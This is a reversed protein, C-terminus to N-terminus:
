GWFCGSFSLGNHTFPKTKVVNLRIQFHPKPEKRGPLTLEHGFCLPLSAPTRPGARGRIQEAKALVGLDRHM